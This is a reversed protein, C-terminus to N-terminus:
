LSGTLRILTSVHLSRARVQIRIAHQNKPRVALGAGTELTYRAMVEADSKEICQTFLVMADGCVVYRQADTKRQNARAERKSRRASTAGATTPESAMGYLSCRVRLNVLNISNWKRSQDLVTHLHQYTGSKQTQVKGIYQYGLNGVRRWCVFM